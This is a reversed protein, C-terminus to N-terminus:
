ENFMTPEKGKDYEEKSIAQGSLRAEYYLKSSFPIPAGYEESGYLKQYINGTKYDVRFMVEEFSDDIYLDKNTYEAFNIPM